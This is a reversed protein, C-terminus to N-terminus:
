NSRLQQRKFRLYEEIEQNIKATIPVELYSKYLKDNDDFESFQYKVINISLVWLGGGSGSLNMENVVIFDDIASLANIFAFIDSDVGSVEFVNPIETLVLQNDNENPNDSNMVVNIRDRVVQNNIELNYKLALNAIKTGFNVVETLETPALSNLINVNQELTNKNNAINQVTALEENRTTFERNLQDIEGLKNIITFIKPIIFIFIIVIFTIISAIPFFYIKFFNILRKLFEVKGKNEEFAEDLSLEKEKQNM